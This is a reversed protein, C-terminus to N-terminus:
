FTVGSPSIMPVVGSSMSITGRASCTNARFHFLRRIAGKRLLPVLTAERQQWSPGTGTLIRRCKKWGL